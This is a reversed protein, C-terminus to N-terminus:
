KKLGGIRVLEWLGAAYGQIDLISDRHAPNHALRSLKLLIMVITYDAPSFHGMTADEVIRQSFFANMLDTFRRASSQWTGYEQGRSELLISLETEDKWNVSPIEEWNRHGTYRGSEAGPKNDHVARKRKSIM